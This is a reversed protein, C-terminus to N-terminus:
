VRIFRIFIPSLKEPGVLRMLRLRIRRGGIFVISRYRHFGLPPN